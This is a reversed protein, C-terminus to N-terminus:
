GLRSQWMEGLKPHVRAVIFGGRERLVPDIYLAIAGLIALGISGKILVALFDNSVSIMSLLWWVVLSCAAMILPNRPSIPFDLLKFSSILVGMSYVAHTILTVASAGAIGYVPIILFNLAINAIVALIGWRVLKDTQKHIYIGAAFFLVCGYLLIGATVWPIVVTGPMYKSGALISVAHPATLSFLAVFPIGVMLYVHLGNSLFARTPERGQKEWMKIYMPRIASIVSTIVIIEVYSAFNYSAAYQGLQSEDLLYQIIYRDSLRMMLGLSEMLMLPVGFWLLASTLKRSFFKASHVKGPLYHYATYILATLEAIVFAGVVWGVSIMGLILYLVILGIYTFRRVMTAFMVVDSRLQATMVNGMNSSIMRFVIYLTGIVFFGVVGEMDSIRPVLQFSMILWGIGALTSCILALSLTTSYFQEKSYSDERYEAEAFYRIISHQIGFKGVAAFLTLSSLVLGLVGYHEISLNRTLIPFSAVGILASVLGGTAYNRIHRLVSSSSQM